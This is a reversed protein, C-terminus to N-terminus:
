GERFRDNSPNEAKEREEGEGEEGYEVVRESLGNREERTGFMKV